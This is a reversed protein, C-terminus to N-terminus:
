YSDFVILLNCKEEIMLKKIDYLEHITAISEITLVIERKGFSIRSHRPNIKNLGNICNKSLESFEISIVNSVEYDIM